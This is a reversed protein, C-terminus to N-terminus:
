AALAIDASTRKRTARVWWVLVAVLFSNRITLGIQLPLTDLSGYGLSLVATILMLAFTVQAVLRSRSETSAIAAPVLLWATYQLSFVPSWILLASLAALSAAGELHGDWRPARSWVLALSLILAAGIATREWPEITGVRPAGGEMRVSAGTVIWVITGIPSEAEWGKAGRFTAVQTPANLGGWLLWALLGAALVISGSSFVNLRRKIIAMPLIVLPWLKMLGGIGFAVGSWRDRHRDFLALALATVAVPILDLRLYLFVILPTGFLLYSERAKRGFTTGIIWATLLDCGFAVVAVRIGTASESPGALADIILVEGPMYEVQVDRWPRGQVTAIQQFRGVDSDLLTGSLGLRFIVALIFLRILILV